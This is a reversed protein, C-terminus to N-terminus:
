EAAQDDRNTGDEVLDVVADMDGEIEDFRVDGRDLRTVMQKQGGELAGLRDVVGGKSTLTVEIRDVADRLSSGSNPILEALVPAFKTEVANDIRGNVAHTFAEQARNGATKLGRYIRRGVETLAILTACVVGVQAWAPDFIFNM